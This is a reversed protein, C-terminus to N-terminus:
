LVLRAQISPSNSGPDVSSELYDPSNRYKEFDHMLEDYENISSHHSLERHHHVSPDLVGLGTAGALLVDDDDLSGAKIDKLAASTWADPSDAGPQLFSFLSQPVANSAAGLVASGSGSGAGRTIAKTSQIAKPQSTLSSAPLLTPALEAFISELTAPLLAPGSVAVEPQASAAPVTAAVASSPQDVIAAAATSSNTSATATPVAAPTEAKTASAKSASKPAAKPPKAHNTHADKNDRDREKHAANGHGRAAVPSHRRSGANSSAPTSSKSPIPSSSGPAVHNNSVHNAQKNKKNDGKRDREKHKAAVTGEGHESEAAPTAPTVVAGAPPSGNNTATDAKWVVPAINEIVEKVALLKNRRKPGSEDDDVSVDPVAEGESDKGKYLTELSSLANPTLSTINSLLELAAKQERKAQKKAQKKLYKDSPPAKSSPLEFDDDGAPAVASEASDGEEEEVEVTDGDEDNVATAAETEMPEVAEAHGAEDAETDTDAHEKDKGAPDTSKGAKHKGKKKKKAASGADGAHNGQSSPSDSNALVAASAATTAAAAALAGITATHPAEVATVAANVNVSVVPAHVKSTTAALSSAKREIPKPPVLVTRELLPRLNVILILLGAIICTFLVISYLSLENPNNTRVLIVSNLAHLLEPDVSASVHRYFDAVDTQIVLMHDAPFAVPGPLYFLRWLSQSGPKLVLPLLDCGDIMLGHGRADKCADWDSFTTNTPLFYPAAIGRAWKFGYLTVNFGGNNYLAILSSLNRQYFQMPSSAQLDFIAEHQYAQEPPLSRLKLKYAQKAQMISEAMQEYSLKSLITDARIHASFNLHLAAFINRHSSHNVCVYFNGEGRIRPQPLWPWSPPPNIAAPAILGDHQTTNRYDLRLQGTVHELDTRCHEGFRFDINGRDSSGKLKVYAVRTLNNFVLLAATHTGILTPTFAIPGLQVFQSCLSFPLLFHHSPFPMYILCISIIYIYKNPLRVEQPGLVASITRPSASKNRPPIHFMVPEHVAFKKGEVTYSVFSHTSSDYQLDKDTAYFETPLEYEFSPFHRAQMGGLVPTVTPYIFPVLIPQSLWVKMSESASPNYVQIYLLKTHNIAQYQFDM